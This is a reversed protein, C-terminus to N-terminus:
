WNGIVALINGDVNHKRIKELLRKHPVKNYAEDLNLFDIDGSVGEDVWQPMKDWFQLFFENFM